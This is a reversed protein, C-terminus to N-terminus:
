SIASTSLRVVKRVNRPERGSFRAVWSSMSADSLGHLVDPGGIGAQFPAQPNQDIPSPGIPTHGIGLNALLIPM